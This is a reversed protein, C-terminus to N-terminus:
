FDKDYEKGDPYFARWREILWTTAPLAPLTDKGCKGTLINLENGMSDLIKGDKLSFKRDKGGLPSDAGASCEYARAVVNESDFVVVIKRGDFEDHIVTKEKLTEYRYLKVSKNQGVSLGYKKLNKKLSFSGMMGAAKKGTLVKTNPHQGKWEKWGAIVSPIFELSKGKMKGKVAEGLTHIWLSGTEKDYMVFSNKYLVGEHGFTLTKGDVKRSYM